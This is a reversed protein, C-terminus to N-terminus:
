AAEDEPNGAFFDGINFGDFDAADDDAVRDMLYWEGEDPSRGRNEFAQYREAEARTGWGYAADGPRGFPYFAFWAEGEDEALDASREADTLIRFTSGHEWDRAAQKKVEAFIETTVEDEDNKASFFASEVMRRSGVSHRSSDSLWLRWGGGEEARIEYYHGDDTLIQHVAAQWSPLGEALPIGEFNLVTWTEAATATM